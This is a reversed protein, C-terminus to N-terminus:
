LNNATLMFLNQAPLNFYANTQDNLLQFRVANDIDGVYAYYMQCISTGASFANNRAAGVINEISGMAETYASTNYARSYVVSSGHYSLAYQVHGATNYILSFNYEATKEDLYWVGPFQSSPTISIEAPLPSADEGPQVAYAPASLTFLFVLTLLIASLSRKM